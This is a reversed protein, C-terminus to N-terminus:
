KGDAERVLFLLFSQRKAPDFTVLMPGSRMAVEKILRYHHLMLEKVTKDGKLVVAVTFKTEIGNVRVAPMEPLNIEENTDATANPSAIVVLDSKEVLEEYSLNRVLRAMSDGTLVLFCVGMALLLRLFKMM